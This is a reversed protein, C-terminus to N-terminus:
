FKSYLLALSQRWAYFQMRKQLAFLAHNEQQQSEGATYRGYRGCACALLEWLILLWQSQYLEWCHLKWLCLGVEVNEDGDPDPCTLCTTPKSSIHSVVLYEVELSPFNGRGSFRYRLHHKKKKKIEWELMSIFPKKRRDVYSRISASYEVSNLLALKGPKLPWNKTLVRSTKSVLNKAYWKWLVLVLARPCCISNNKHFAYVIIRVPLFYM